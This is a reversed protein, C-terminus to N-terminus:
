SRSVVRRSCSDPPRPRRAWFRMPRTTCAPESCGRGGPPSRLRKTLRECHNCRMRVDRNTGHRAPAKRTHQPLSSDAIAVAIAEIPSASVPREAVAANVDCSAVTPVSMDTAHHRTSRSASPLSRPGHRFVRPRKFHRHAPRVTLNVSAAPAIMAQNNTRMSGIPQLSTAARWPPMPGAVQAWIVAAVTIASRQVHRGAAAFSPQGVGDGTGNGIFCYCRAFTRPILARM